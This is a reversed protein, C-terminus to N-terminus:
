ARLNFKSVGTNLQTAATALQKSTSNVETMGLSLEKSSTAIQEAGAATEEAVVVIKEINKVTENISSKQVESATQVEQSLEFTEGTVKGITEFVEKANLSAQNGSKVSAGMSDISVGALGIDKQVATIVKQIDVASKRSDEALKRIEEAVVAFGRGAEGARAAEIAANLALLNTQAAIDTIVNLTRAIEESRETLADISDSTTKASAEIETMNEVVKEVTLLGEKSSTTGNEAAKNIHDSKGSMNNASSLVDEVLKSVEDTQKAQQNAGEAMQQIATAVQQTTNQMQDSKTLLEESSSGVLSAVETLNLMLENLNTVAENFADGLEKIDGSVELTFETDLNGNSLEKMLDKVVILPEGITNLLSNVSEGLKKYDGSAKATDLRQSLDGEQSAVSVIKNIEEIVVKMETIDNAIKIVKFVNDDADKVPTYSANIWVDSGDKKIRRFEGAQIEGNALDRWFNKYESSKTYDLDCFMKHHKGILEKAGTYGLTSVFNENADLITGDPTFEISAWATDVASKVAAANTREEVMGSIDNAIKIVKYVKGTEDKVPTYSANIWVDSGDKRIRKFEGAQIEGNALDRWFNKYESSKTYEPDCFMQHHNGALESNKSYGLAKIFNDNAELITGDPEFEISAWATNVANKLAWEGKNDTTPNNKLSNVEDRLDEIIQFNERGKKQEGNGTKPQQEMTNTNSKSKNIKKESKKNEEQGM